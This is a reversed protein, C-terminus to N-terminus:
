MISIMQMKTMDRVKVPMIWFYSSSDHGEKIEILEDIM